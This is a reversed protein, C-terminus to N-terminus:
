FFALGVWFCICALIYALVIDWGLLFGLLAFGLALGFWAFVFGLWAV